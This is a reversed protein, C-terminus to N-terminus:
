PLGLPRGRPVSAARVVRIARDPQLRRLVARDQADDLERGVRLPAIAGVRACCEIRDASPMRGIRMRCIRHHVLRRGDIVDDDQLALDVCDHVLALRQELGAVNEDLAAGVM